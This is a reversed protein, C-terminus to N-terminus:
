IFKMEELLHQRSEQLARQWVDTHHYLEVSLYHKYGSSKLVEFIAKYDLDGEGPIEHHHVKGKIDEIHVHRTYSLSEAISDLINEQCCQVHGIDLNLKLRSSGNKEILSIAQTTTEIFMEPEPEIALITDEKNKLCSEIGEILNKEAIKFSEGKKIRGSAFNVVPISLFEAIDITSRILDIRKQREKQDPSVLSPEFPKSSLLDSAGAAICVPVVPNSKFVSKLEQLSRRSTQFPHFHSSHLSLEIGEYGAKSVEEIAKYLPINRLGNTNYSLPIM